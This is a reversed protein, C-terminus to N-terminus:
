NFSLSGDLGLGCDQAPSAFATRVDPFDELIAEGGEIREPMLRGNEWVAVGDLRISPDLVNLSIEGPAYDGCTHFHLLRPNGFAGGSWREFNQSAPSLFRCGPHIGAHWSHVFHPEIGFKHAVFEYHAKAASVDDASGRFGTIRQGEFVVFLTDELPCAYPTYYKSGTGVLFGGQAVQGKFGNATCPTFVSMPFRTVNVDGAADTTGCQGSFDTGLPCTVHIMRACALAKDVAQKLRLFARHDLTGFPSALMESNLAYSVVAHADSLADRFRIQDGMRALFLTCDAAQIFDKTNADPEVLDAVFPADRITAEIQLTKATTAIQDALNEGYFGLVPAERLILLRAGPGLGACNRLLNQAGLDTNRSLDLM